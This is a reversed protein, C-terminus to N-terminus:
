VVSHDRMEIYTRNVCARLNPLSHSWTKLGTPKRFPTCRHVHYFRQDLQLVDISHDALKLHLLLVDRAALGLLIRAERAHVGRQLDRLVLERRHLLPNLVFLGLRLFDALAHLLELDGLSRNGGVLLHLLGDHLDFPQLVVDLRGLVAGEGQLLVLDGHKLGTNRVGLRLHGGLAAAHVAIGLVKIAAQRVHLGTQGLQADLAGLLRGRDLGDIRADARREQEVVLAQARLAPRHNHRQAAVLDALAAVHLLRREHGLEHAM